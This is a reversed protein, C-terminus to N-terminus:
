MIPKPIMVETQTKIGTKKLQSVQSLNSLWETGRTCLQIITFISQNLGQLIILVTGLESYTLILIM